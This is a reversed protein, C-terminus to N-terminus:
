EEETGLAWLSNLFELEPEVGSRNALGLKERSICFGKSNKTHM